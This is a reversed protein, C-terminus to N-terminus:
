KIKPPLKYKEIFQSMGDSNDFKRTYPQKYYERTIRKIYAPDMGTENRVAIIPTNERKTM